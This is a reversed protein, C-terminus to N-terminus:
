IKKRKWFILNDILKFNNQIKNIPHILPLKYVIKGLYKKDLNKSLNLFNFFYLVVWQNKM